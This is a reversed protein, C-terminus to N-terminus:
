PDGCLRIQFRTSELSQIEVLDFVSTRLSELLRRSLNRLSGFLKKIEGILFSGKEMLQSIIHAIQLLLYFNKM